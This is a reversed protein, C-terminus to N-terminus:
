YIMKLKFHLVLLQQKQLKTVETVEADEKKLTDSYLVKKVEHLRQKKDELVTILAEAKELQEKKEFLEKRMRDTESNFVHADVTHFLNRNPDKKEEEQRIMQECNKIDVQLLMQSLKADRLRDENELYIEDIVSYDCMAESMRSVVGKM